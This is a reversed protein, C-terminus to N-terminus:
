RRRRPPGGLMAQWTTADADSSVPADDTVADRVETIVDNTPVVSSAPPVSKSASSPPADCVLLVVEAADMLELLESAAQSRLSPDTESSWRSAADRLRQALQRGSRAARLDLVELVREQRLARALLADILGTARDLTASQRPPTM